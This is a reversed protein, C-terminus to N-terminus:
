KVRTYTAEPWDNRAEGNAVINVRHSSLTDDDVKRVHTEYTITDGNQNTGEVNSVLTGDRLQTTGKSKTGNSIINITVIGQADDKYYLTFWSAVSQGDRKWEGSTRLVHGEADPKSSTTIKHSSGSGEFELEWDGVLFQLAALEESLKLHHDAHATAVWGFVIILSISCLLHRMM